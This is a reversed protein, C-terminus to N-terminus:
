AAATQAQGQINAAEDQLDAIAEGAVAALAEDLEEAGENDLNFAATLAAVIYDPLPGQFMSLFEASMDFVRRRRQRRNPPTPASLVPADGSPADDNPPTTDHNLLSSTPTIFLCDIPAQGATAATNDNRQLKNLELEQPTSRPQVQEGGQLVHQPLEPVQNTIVPSGNGTGPLGAQADLAPEQLTYLRRAKTAKVIYDNFLDNLAQTDPVGPIRNGNLYNRAAEQITSAQNHFLFQLEIEERTRLDMLSPLQQPLVANQM